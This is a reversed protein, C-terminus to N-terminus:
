KPGSLRFRAEGTAMARVIGDSAVLHAGDGFMEVDVLEGLPYRGVVAGAVDLLVVEKPGGDAYPGMVCAWVSQQRDWAVRLAHARRPPRFDWLPQGAISLCRVAGATEGFLVADPSVAADTVSYTRLPISWAIADETVEYRHMRKGDRCLVWSSRAQWADYIVARWAITRGDSADLLHLGGQELCVALCSRGNVTVHTLIHSRLLDPRHWLLGGTFDHVSVGHGYYGAIAVRANDLLALRRGGLELKSRFGGIPKREELSWVVVEKDRAATAFHGDDACAIAPLHRLSNAKARETGHKPSWHGGAFSKGNDNALVGLGAVARLRAARKTKKGPHAGM